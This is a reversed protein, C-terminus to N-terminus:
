LTMRCIADALYGPAKLLRSGYWSFFEGDVLKVPAGPCIMNFAAIHREQFPFPESSLLIVDPDGAALESPTIWAYREARHAFVNTLGARRMMDHIFTGGGAVMLPDRWIFYAASRLPVLPQLGAFAQGIRANVSRAEDEANVLAGVRLIMDLAGDLDRVDSMWVPFDRELAEIDERSNEEKNGIILDPQLARVKEIDVQKTGGVRAKSRFWEEPHVCFKTIGVVRDGLGLDYLLETQSPVLSIIRQPRDPVQVARHMQDILRM